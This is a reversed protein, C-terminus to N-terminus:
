ILTVVSEEHHNGVMEGQMIGQVYLEGVLEYTKTGDWRSTQLRILYPTQAGYPIFVIDGARALPPVLCSRHKETVAFCRGSCAEVLCNIYTLLTSDHDLLEYLDTDSTQRPDMLAIRRLVQDAGQQWVSRWAQVMDAPIQLHSDAMLALWIRDLETEAATASSDPAPLLSPNKHTNSLEITSKIFDLLHRVRDMDMRLAKTQYKLPGASSLCLISDCAVGKVLISGQAHGSTVGAITSGSARFRPKLRILNAFPIRSRDQCLYPMWSHSLRPRDHYGSGAFALLIIAPSHKHLFLFRAIDEFVQETSRSYDPLPLDQRTADLDNALGMVAFVKDREDSAKFDVTMYLISELRTLEAHSRINGTLSVGPEQRLAHLVIVFHFQLLESSGPENQGKSLLAIKDPRQLSIVAMAFVSWPMYVGGLYLQVDKGAAIEQVIWARSFYEQKLLRALARWRPTISPMGGTIMDKLQEAQPDLASAKPAYAHMYLLSVALRGRWDSDPFVIVRVANRYIDSMMRVQDSKEHENGQNICVADVWITRERFFSRRALLLEFASSTVSLRSGEVLIEEHQATSGWRYSVAEYEPPSHGPVHILRAELTGFRRWTARKLVLLRIHGPELSAYQYELVTRRQRQEREFRYLRRQAAKPFYQVLAAEFLEYIDLLMTSKMRIINPLRSFGPFPLKTKMWPLRSEHTILSFLSLLLISMFTHVWWNMHIRAKVSELMSYFDLGQLCTIMGLSLNWEAAWNVAIVLTWFGIHRIASLFQTHFNVAYATIFFGLVGDWHGTCRIKEKHPPGDTQIYEWSAALAVLVIRRIGADCLIRVNAPVYTLCYKLWAFWLASAILRETKSVDQSKLIRHTTFARYVNDVVLRSTNFWPPFYWDWITNLIVTWVGIGFYMLRLPYFYNGDWALNDRGPPQGKLLYSTYSEAM